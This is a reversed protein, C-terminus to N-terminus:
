TWVAVLHRCITYCVHKTVNWHRNWGSDRLQRLFTWKNVIEGWMISMLLRVETQKNDVEPNRSPSPSLLWFCQLCANRTMNVKEGYTSMSTRRCIDARWETDASWPQRACRGVPRYPVMKTHVGTALNVFRQSYNVTEHDHVYFFLTQKSQITLQIPTLRHESIGDAAVDNTADTFETVQPLQQHAQWEDSWICIDPRINRHIVPTLTAADHRAFIEM